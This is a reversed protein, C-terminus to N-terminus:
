IVAGWVIVVCGSMATVREEKRIVEHKEDSRPNALMTFVQWYRYAFLWHASYFCAYNVAYLISDWSKLKM